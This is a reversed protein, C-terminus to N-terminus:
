GPLSGREGDATVKIQMPIGRWALIRYRTM